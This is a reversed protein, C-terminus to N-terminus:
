LRIGGALWVMGERGQGSLAEPDNTSNFAPVSLLTGGLGWHGGWPAPLTLGLQDIVMSDLWFFHAAMMQSAGGTALGAPNWYLSEVDGTAPNPGGLVVSRAGFGSLLSLMGVSKAVCISHSGPWVLLCFLILMFVTTPKKIM